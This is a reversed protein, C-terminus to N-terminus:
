AIARIRARLELCYEVIGQPTQNVVINEYYFDTYSAKVDLLGNEDVVIAKFKRKFVQEGQLASSGSTERRRRLSEGGFLKPAPRSWQVKLDSGGPGTHAVTRELGGAVRM